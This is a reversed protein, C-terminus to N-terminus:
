DLGESLKEIRLKVDRLYAECRTSLRMGEEYRAMAEELTLEGSEMEAGIAELRGLTEEISFGDPVHNGVDPSDGGAEGRGPERADQDPRERNNKM